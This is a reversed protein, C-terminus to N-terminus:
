LIVLMTMRTQRENAGPVNTSSFWKNKDVYDHGHLIKWVQIM